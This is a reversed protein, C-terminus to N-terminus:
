GGPVEQLLGQEQYDEHVGHSCLNLTAQAISQNHYPSVPVSLWFFCAQALIAQAL